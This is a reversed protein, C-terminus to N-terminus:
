VAWGELGMESLLQRWRPVSGGGDQTVEVAVEAMKLQPLNWRSVGVSNQFGVLLTGVPKVSSGDGVVSTAVEM